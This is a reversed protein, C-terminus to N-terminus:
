TVSSPEVIPVSSVPEYHGGTWYITLIKTPSGHLPLFEIPSKGDRRNEVLIRINWHNVAAQIEIAGGWVHSNRMNAIYQPSELAVIDATSMGDMIPKNAALYDCIIQRMDNTPIDLLRGLSNFLCSM